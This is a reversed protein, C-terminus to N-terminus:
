DKPRFVPALLELLASRSIYFIDADGQVQGYFLTSNMNGAQTPSFSLIIDKTPGSSVGPEGLTIVIRLSPNQLAGIANTIDGVWDHANLKSLAEALRDAKVRDLMSTIDQGARAGSWQATSPDYNLVTPPATGAGLSIRRLAFQSFRLVGLGKWKIPEQPIAPLITADVRYVSPSQEYKAYFETSEKNAGFLLTEARGAATAWAVKLFPADLGYSGLSSASDAAFDLVEYSNLTEFFRGVRDGNARVLRGGRGAFWSNNQKELHIPQHLASTIDITTVAEPDIRALMRDRLQNPEAWLRPLDKSIVTFAPKRHSVRAKTEAAGAPEPRQLLMELPAQGGGLSVLVKMESSTIGLEDQPKVAGGTGASTEQADKITLNLLASLLDNVRETSARVQLPKVLEWAQGEAGRALEIQGGAHILKVGAVDGAPLRLLKPDRWENPVAKLLDPLLTRAVYSAPQGAGEVSRLVLYHTGGVPAATGMGLNLVEKTGNKLRVVHGPKELLTRAWTDADFETRHVRNLWGTARIETLLRDVREPDALDNFPRRVWWRGGDWQLSVGDGGESDIEVQTIAKPDFRVPGKRMEALERTSPLYREIGLIGAGLLAAIFLLILTSKFSM